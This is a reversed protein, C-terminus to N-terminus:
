LYMKSISLEGDFETSDTETKIIIVALSLATPM